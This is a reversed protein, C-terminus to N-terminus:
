EGFGEQSAVVNHLRQWETHLDVMDLQGYAQAMLVWLIRKAEDSKISDTGNDSVYDALGHAFPIPNVPFSDSFMANTLRNVQAQTLKPDEHRIIVNGQSTDLTEKTMNNYIEAKKPDTALMKQKVQEYSM